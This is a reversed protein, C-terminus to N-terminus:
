GAAELEDPNFLTLQAGSRAPDATVHRQPSVDVLCEAPIEELSRAYVETSRVSSHGLARQVLRLDKTTAYLRMAFTHRLSHFTLGHGAGLLRGFLEGALRQPQRHSLRRGSGSAVLYPSPRRRDSLQGQIVAVVSPHLPVVRPRGGKITDVRLQRTAPYFKEVRAGTVEGVRLGCLGLAVAVADRRRARRRSRLADFIAAELRPLDDLPFWRIVDM